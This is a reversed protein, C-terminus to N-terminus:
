AARELPPQPPAQAEPVDTWLSPRVVWAEGARFTFRVYDQLDGARFSTVDIEGQLTGPEAVERLVKVLDLVDANVDRLTVEVGGLWSNIEYEGQSYLGLSHELVDTVEEAATGIGEFKVAGNLRQYPEFVVPVTQGQYREWQAHEYDPQAWAVTLFGGKWVKLRVYQGTQEDQFYLAGGPMRSRERDAIRSLFELLEGTIERLAPLNDPQVHRVVLSPPAPSYELWSAPAQELRQQTAQSLEGLEVQGICVLHTRM